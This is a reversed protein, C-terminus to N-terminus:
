APASLARTDFPPPAGLVAEVARASALLAADTGSSACLQLGVPLAAGLHQIPLTVGCQDFLNCPRTNRTTLRNWAAVQEVTTFGATPAPQVPVTPTLWADIDASQALVSHVIERRRAAIRLYDEALIGDAALLREAAVPDIRDLQRRVRDRGLFAILDAPVLLRFVADIEAAEPLDREIVRVGADRLQQVAREFCTAVGEDLQEHFHRRPVALTLESPAPVRAPARQDLAAEILAADAANATFLGISDFQPSLPFVGDGPWRRASAKYGVVGCLAAPWRVSGGTDSGVSFGCTQAAMAVASGHSSGGTMRPVQADCPNWPVGHTLNYGGLAFEVTRTKGLVVCGARQLQTVFPGQPPVLDAIDIATGATTPMGDVTYLDKLVVPVGMLPGLDVGAARLADIGEAHRRARAHDVHTHARLRPELGDIRALMAETTGQATTAGRRLDAGFDALTRGRLPSDPPPQTQSMPM